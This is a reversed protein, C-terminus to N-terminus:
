LLSDDRVIDPISWAYILQFSHNGSPIEFVITNEYTGGQNVMVSQYPISSDFTAASYDYTISDIIVSWYAASTYIPHPADNAMKMHLVMYQMGSGASFYGIQSTTSTEFDIRCAEAPQQEGIGGFAFAMALIAVVSIVIIIFAIQNNNLGTMDKSTM